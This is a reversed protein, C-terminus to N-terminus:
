LLPMVASLAVKELTAVINRADPNITPREKFQWFVSVNNLELIFAHIHKSHPLCCSKGNVVARDLSLYSYHRIALRKLLYQGCNKQSLSWKDKLNGGVSIMSVRHRVGSSAVAGPGVQYEEGKVM